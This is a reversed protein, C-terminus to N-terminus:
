NSPVSNLLVTNLVTGDISIDIAIGIQKNTGSDAVDTLNADAADWYLIDGIAWVDASAAPLEHEGSASLAGTSGDAIATLAVGFRSATGLPGVVQGSTVASGSPTHTIKHGNKRFTTSM